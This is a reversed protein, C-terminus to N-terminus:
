MGKGWLGRPIQRQPQPFSKQNLLTVMRKELKDRYYFIMTRRKETIPRDFNIKVKRRMDGGGWLRVWPINSM